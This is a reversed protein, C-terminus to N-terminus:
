LTTKDFLLTTYKNEFKILNAIIEMLKSIFFYNQDFDGKKITDNLITVM